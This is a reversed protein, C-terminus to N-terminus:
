KKEFPFGLATLLAKAEGKNRATTKINVELGFNVSINEYRAEPFISYERIGITYNGKEDFAKLSLGRFDRVRPLSINVLKELFDYMRKGRLTATLGVPQGIRLKFASVAKRSLNIKPQQGTIKALEGAIKNVTNQDEKYDGVGTSVVVKEVRPVEFDNTKALSKKLEPLINKKVREILKKM